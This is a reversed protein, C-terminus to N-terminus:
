NWFMNIVVFSFGLGMLCTSEIVGGRLRQHGSIQKRKRYPNAEEPYKVYISDYLLVKQTQSKARLTLNKLDMRATARTLGENRKIASYYEM